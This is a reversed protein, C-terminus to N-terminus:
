HISLNNIDDNNAIRHRKYLFLNNHIIEYIYLFFFGSVVDRLDPIYKANSDKRWLYYM